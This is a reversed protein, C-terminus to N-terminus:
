ARQQASYPRRSSDEEVGGFPQEFALARLRLQMREGVTVPPRKLIARTSLVALPRSLM